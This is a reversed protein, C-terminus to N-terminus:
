KEELYDEDPLRVPQGAVEPRGRRLGEPKLELRVAGSREHVGDGAGGPVEDGEVLLPARRRDGGYAERKWLYLTAAPVGTERSLTGIGVPEPVSPKRLVSEKFEVAYRAM